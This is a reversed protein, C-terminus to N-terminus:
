RRHKRLNILKNIQKKNLVNKCNLLYNFYMIIYDTKLNSINKIIKELEKRDVKDSKMLYLFRLEYIKIESQMKISKELYDLILKNIKNIQTESLNLKEKQKILYKGSYISYKKYIISEGLISINIFGFIIVLIIIRKKM